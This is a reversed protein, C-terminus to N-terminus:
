ALRKPVHERLEGGRPKTSVGQLEVSQQGGRRWTFVRPLVGVPLVLTIVGHNPTFNGFSSGVLEVSRGWASALTNRGGDAEIQRLLPPPEDAGWGDGSKDILM